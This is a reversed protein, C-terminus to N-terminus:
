GILNCFKDLSYDLICSTILSLCPKIGIKKNRCQWKQEYFRYMHQVQQSHSTSHGSMPPSLPPSSSQTKNPRKALLLDAHDPTEPPTPDPLLRETLGSQSESQQMYPVSAIHVQPSPTLLSTCTSDTNLLLPSSLPCAAASDSTSGAKTGSVLKGASKESHSDSSVLLAETSPLQIGSRLQLPFHQEGLSESRHRQRTMFAMDAEESSTVSHTPSLSFSLGARPRLRRREGRRSWRVSSGIQQTEDNASSSEYCRMSSIEAESSEETYSETASWDDDSIHYKGRKRKRRKSPAPSIPSSPPSFSFSSDAARDGSSSRGRRQESRQRREARKSRATAVAKMNAQHEEQAELSNISM